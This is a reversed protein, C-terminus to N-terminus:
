PSGGGAVGLSAAREYGTLTDFCARPPAAATTVSDTGEYIPM